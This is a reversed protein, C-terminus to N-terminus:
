CVGCVVVVLVCIVCVFVIDVFKDVCVVKVVLLGFLYVGDFGSMVFEDGVVFDVSMLVFCLDFLDGKLMGYIVSCLGICLM